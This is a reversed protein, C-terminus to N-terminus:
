QKWICFTSQIQNTCSGIKVHDGAIRVNEKFNKVTGQKCFTNNNVFQIVLSDFVLSSM